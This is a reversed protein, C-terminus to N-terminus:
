HQGASGDGGSSAAILTKLWREESIFEWAYPKWREAVGAAIIEAESKGEALATRVAALTSELMEIAEKVEAVGAVAPGHGAIIRIDEPVMALVTKLNKIYGHVSGGGALDVFPFRQNFLQDGLHLVGANKFYVVSDGDTHGAPLHIVDIEDDNFYIRLREQYTVVPLGARDVDDAMELRVRVNEHAIITGAQAFFANSGTHDGHYHTNLVLKPTAGGIESIAAQIREALPAYQDDVILTGDAGISVGVHGGAGTLVYVNGAVREAEVEVTAFRDAPGGQASQALLVALSTLVAALSARRLMPHTRM